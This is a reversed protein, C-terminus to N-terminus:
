QIVETIIWPANYARVYDEVETETWFHSSKPKLIHSGTPTPLYTREIFSESLDALSGIVEVVDTVIYGSFGLDTINFWITQTEM